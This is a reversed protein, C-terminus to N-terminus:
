FDKPNVKYVVGYPYQNIVPTFYKEDANQLLFLQVFSSNLLAPSLIYTIFGNAAPMLVVSYGMQLTYTQTNTLKGNDTLMLKSLQINNSNASLM